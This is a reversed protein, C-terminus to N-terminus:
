DACPSGQLAAEILLTRVTTPTLHTIVQDKARVGLYIWFWSGATSTAYGSHLTYLIYGGCKDLSHRVRSQPVPGVRVIVRTGSEEVLLLTGNRYRTM